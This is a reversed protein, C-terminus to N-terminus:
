KHNLKWKGAAALLRSTADGTQMNEEPFVIEWVDVQMDVGDEGTSPRKRKVRAPLVRRVNEVRENGDSSPMKENQEIEWSLWNESLLLASERKKSAMNGGNLADERLKRTGRKYMNRIAEDGAEIEELMRLYSLWVCEDSHATTYQEFLQIARSENCSAAVVDALKTWVINVNDLEEVNTALELVNRARVTEGLNLEMDAFSIFTESNTPNRTLWADYIKRARDVEGLATELKVYARYIAHKQPLVGIGRGFVRRAAKLDGRRVEAQAYLIWLKEFSFRRHNKPLTAISRKFIDVAGPLDNCTLELWTAYSIWVYIYRGWASETKVPPINCIAREYTSRVVEQPSSSELLLLLDWWTDYDTPNNKLTAEYTNHKKTILIDDLAERNGQQKEFSTYTRDLDAKSDDSCNLTAFKYIARARDPQNRREEFKAFSIFFRATLQYKPLEEAGREYVHRAHAYQEQREEYKAFKIYSHATQHASILQKYVARVNEAQGYRLEFRIFAFYATNEPYWKLWRQYVLRALKTQKLLEEMYAYKLWLQDVRPLLAVARDFVNRAHNVFRHRMEMEAYNLWIVPNRYDNDIAREWISRARIFENQTEEWRAYRIWLPVHSRNRVIRMEFQKRETRQYELLEEHDAIIQKPIAPPGSEKREWAERTLQEATIQVKAPAKNKVGHASKGRAHSPVDDM